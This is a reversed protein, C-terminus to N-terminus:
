GIVGVVRKVFGVGGGVPSGEQAGAADGLRGKLDGIPGIWSRGGPGVREGGGDM